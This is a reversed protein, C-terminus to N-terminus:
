DIVDYHAPPEVFKSTSERMWIGRWPEPPIEAVEIRPGEGDLSYELPTALTLVYGRGSGWDPFHEDLYDRYEIVSWNQPLSQLIKNYKEVAEKCWGNQVHRGTPMKSKEKRGM